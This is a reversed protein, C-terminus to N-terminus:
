ELQRVSQLYSFIEQSPTSGTVPENTGRRQGPDV